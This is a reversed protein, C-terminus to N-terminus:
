RLCRKISVTPLKLPETVWFPEPQSTSSHLGRGADLTALETTIKLKLNYIEATFYHRLIVNFAVNSLPEDYKLM